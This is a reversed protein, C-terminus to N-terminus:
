PVFLRGAGRYDDIAFLIDLLKEVARMAYSPEQCLREEDALTIVPLSQLTNEQRIVVELSDPTDANRNATVLVLQRQQCERWITVDSANDPLGLEHLTHVQLHLHTWIERWTESECIRQLPRVQGQANIDALLGKM